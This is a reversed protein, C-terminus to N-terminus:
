KCIEKKVVTLTEVDIFFRIGRFTSVFLVGDQQAALTYLDDPQNGLYEGTIEKINVTRGDKTVEVNNICDCINETMWFHVEANGVVFQKEQM